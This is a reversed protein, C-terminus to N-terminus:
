IAVSEYDTEMRGETFYEFMSMCLEDVVVKHVQQFAFRVLSVALLSISDLASVGSTRLSFQTNGCPGRLRPEDITSRGVM